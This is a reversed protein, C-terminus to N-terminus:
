MRPLLITVACCLSLFVDHIKELKSLLALRYAVPGIRETVEYPGIFWPNLRGKKSFRNSYIISYTLEISHAQHIRENEKRQAKVSM